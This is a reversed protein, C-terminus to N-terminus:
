RATISTDALSATDISGTEIYGGPITTKAM